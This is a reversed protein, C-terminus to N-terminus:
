YRQVRKYLAQRSIPKVANGYQDHWNNYAIAKPVKFGGNVVQCFYCHPLNKELKLFSSNFFPRVMDFARDNPDTEDITRAESRSIQRGKGALRGGKAGFTAANTQANKRKPMCHTVNDREDNCTLAIIAAYGYMAFPPRSPSERGHYAFRQHGNNTSPAPTALLFLPALSIAQRSAAIRRAADSALSAM